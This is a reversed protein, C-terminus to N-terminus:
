ASRSRHSSMMAQSHGMASGSVALRLGVDVLLWGAGRRAAEIIPRRRKERRRPASAEAIQRLEAVRDRVLAEVLVPNQWV